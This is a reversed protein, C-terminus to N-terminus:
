KRGPRCRQDSIISASFSMRAARKRNHTSKFGSMSIHSRNELYIILSILYGNRFRIYKDLRFCIALATILPVSKIFKLPSGEAGTVVQCIKICLCNRLFHIHWPM